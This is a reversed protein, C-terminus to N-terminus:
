RIKNEYYATIILIKKSSFKGVVILHKRRNSLKGRKSIKGDISSIVKGKIAVEKVEKIGIKREILRETAHTTLIILPMKKCKEL